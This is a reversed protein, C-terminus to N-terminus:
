GKRALLSAIAKKGRESDVTGERYALTELTPFLERLEGPRLLFAEQQPGWGFRRQGLTFTEFILLGGPRLAEVLPPCLDRQLYYFNLVAAFAQRPLDYSDLDACVAEISLRRRAAEARCRAVAVPSIDVGTVDYGLSALYLANRGSGMAVDLVQGSGTSPARGSGASPARGIPPLLSVNAVLFDAPGREPIAEESRYREDWFRAVDENM